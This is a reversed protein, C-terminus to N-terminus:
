DSKLLVVSPKPTLWTDLAALPIPQKEKSGTKKKGHFRPLM